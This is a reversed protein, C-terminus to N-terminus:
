FIAPFRPHPRGFFPLHRFPNTAPGCRCRIPPSSFVAFRMGTQNRQSKGCKETHDRLSFSAIFFSIDKWHARCRHQDNARGSIHASPQDRKKQSRSIADPGRRPRHALQGGPAPAIMGADLKHRGVHHVGLGKAPGGLATPGGDIQDVGHGGRAFLEHVGISNRGAVHGGDGRGLPQVPDDIQATQAFRAAPLQTRMQGGPPFHAFNELGTGHRGGHQPGPGNEARAAGGEFDQAIGHIPERHHQGRAPHAGAILGDRDPVHQIVEPAAQLAVGHPAPGEVDAPRVHEGVPSQGFDVGFLGPEGAPDDDGNGEYRGGDAGPEDVHQRRDGGAVGPGQHLADAVLRDAVFM